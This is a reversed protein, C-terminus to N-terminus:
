FWKSRDGKLAVISERANIRDVFAALKPFGDLLGPVKGCLVDLVQWVALDAYTLSDGVFFGDGGGNDTLLKEFAPGFRGDIHDKKFAARDEDTGDTLPAAFFKIRLDEAALTIEMARADAAADTPTLPPTALRGIYQMIAAGQALVMGTERDELSPLSKFPAFGAPAEERMKGFMEKNVAVNEWAVGAEHLIARCQAGRGGFPFYRLAFRPAAAAM